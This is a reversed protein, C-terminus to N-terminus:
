VPGERVVCVCMCVCDIFSSHCDAIVLSLSKLGEFLKSIKM